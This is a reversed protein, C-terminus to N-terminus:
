LKGGGRRGRSASGQEEEEEEEEEEQGERLETRVAERLRRAMEAGEEEDLEERRGRGFMLWARESQAVVASGEGPRPIIHFHVHPVTQAARPGAEGM